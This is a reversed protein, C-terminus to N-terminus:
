PSLSPPSRLTHRTVKGLPTKPLSAAFEIVRPQKYYVLNQQCFARVCAETLRPHSPVIVLKVSEGGKTDSLGICVCDQVGDLQMLLQEIEAPYVNFGNVLIMDKKRDLMKFYGREDMMGMDGTKFYGDPTMVQATEDPHQWYGAMVQPGRIAIEGPQGQAVEHGSDDLLKGWTGPLPLGILGTYDTATVPNVIALPSTESLGYGECIACGTRARWLEAVARQVPAGGGPSVLLSRWSVQDFEPHCALKDFLTNVAPFIHVRRGALDSLMATLNRPDPILVLLGGLRISLLMAVTIAFVHYLPLACVVTIQEGHPLKVLAPQLWAQAQLVNAALHRQWLMAGKAVGTTGGTYQLVALDDPKITPLPPLTPLTPLVGAAKAQRLASNFRVAGPLRYPPVRKKLHRVIANVVRGRIPGLLDGMACLVIHQVPTTALCSQLCAAFNELIVIARAGSDTLQHALERPTYLPNITVLVLGMRLIAAVAVPFQLVNPLMVAVRDGPQLGLGQLYRGLTQSLDDVQRYTLTIGMMSCATRDAHQVFSDTLMAAISATAADQDPDIDAPVGAPYASLWIRETM